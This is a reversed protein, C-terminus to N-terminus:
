ARGGDRNKSYAGYLGFAEVMTDLRERTVGLGESDEPIIGILGGGFSGLHDVYSKVQALIDDRSGSIGTTQYSVSCAFCIKGGFRRGLEPVRNIDPQGPNLIDLGIDILDPVIDYIYGCSHLYVDLGFRHAIEIQRRYRPKFVERWMSPSIFLGQQTGWDDALGIADYGHGRVRRIVEEEFGFVIDALEEVRDRDTHLGEMIANFGRLLSMLTFGSLIFNAKYYKGDGYRERAAGIKEFRAPDAPDPVRIKGLDDWSEVLATKPQGMALSRDINVWEFGWESINRDPGLFHRVVEVNVVDSRDLSWPYLLPVREPNRMHVAKRVLEKSSM